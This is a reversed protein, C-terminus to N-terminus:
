RAWRGGLSYTGDVYAWLDRLAQPNNYIHLRQVGHLLSFFGGSIKSEWRNRLVSALEGEEYIDIKPIYVERDTGRFVIPM